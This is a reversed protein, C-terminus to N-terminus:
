VNESNENILDGMLNIIQDFQSLNKQTSKNELYQRIKEILDKQFTNASLMTPFETIIRHRCAVM